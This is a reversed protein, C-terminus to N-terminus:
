VHKARVPWLCSWCGECMCQICGSNEIFLCHLYQKTILFPYLFDVMQIYIINRSTGLLFTPSEWYGHKIVKIVLHNEKKGKRLTDRFNRLFWIHLAPNANGSLRRWRDPRQDLRMESALSRGLSLLQISSMDINKINVCPKTSSGSPKIRSSLKFNLLQCIESVTWCHYCQNKSGLRLLTKLM